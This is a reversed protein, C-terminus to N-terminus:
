KDDMFVIMIIETDKNMDSIINSILVSDLGIDYMMDSSIKGWPAM